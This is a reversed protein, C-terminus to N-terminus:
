VSAGSVSRIYQFVEPLCPTMNAVYADPSMKCVPLVAVVSISGANVRQRLLSTAPNVRSRVLQELLSPSARNTSRAIFPNSDLVM